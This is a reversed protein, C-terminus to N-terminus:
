NASEQKVQNAGRLLPCRASRKHLERKCCRLAARLERELKHLDNLKRRVQFLKENLRRCVPACPQMRTLRLESLERIERLTFGLGQAGRIFELTKVDGEGFQRFGGASRPPSPLLANREYFRIADATLGIKRAVAGIQM